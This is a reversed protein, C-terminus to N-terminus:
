TIEGLFRKVKREMDEETMGFKGAWVRESLFHFGDPQGQHHRFCVPAVRDHDKPIGMGTYLHHVKPAAGCGEVVCGMKLM